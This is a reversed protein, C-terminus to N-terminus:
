HFPLCQPCAKDLLTLKVLVRRAYFFFESDQISWLWATNVFGKDYAAHWIGDFFVIGVLEVGLSIGLALYFFKKYKAFLESNVFPVLLLIMFLIVDSSMRYGFSWGGYWHKWLSIVLTHALILIGILFFKLNDKHYNKLLLYISVFMFIFIPSYILIGKSPSLWVGFFGDPFPSLWNNFIQNSYGQNSINLYFKANYWVFFLVDLIIGFGFFFMKVLYEIFSRAHTIYIMGAAFFLVLGATPRSLIALGLFIGCLILHKLKASKQAEFLYYVGLITFLELTGHQWLAQSILAFNITCFLYVATLLLSKKEGALSENFFHKRLLLFLFGGSLAVILAGTVHSLIILMEWTLPMGSLVPLLYVPVALLATIIPFASVYHSGAVRLYFPVLGLLQKKDDPHPYRALMMPYFKDLYLNGDKIISIPLFLAPITDESQIALSNINTKYVGLWSFFYISFSVLVLILFKLFINLKHM